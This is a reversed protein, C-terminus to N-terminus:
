AGTAPMPMATNRASRDANSPPTPRAPVGPLRQSRLIGQPHGLAPVGAAIADNASAINRFM